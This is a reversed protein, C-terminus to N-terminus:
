RGGEAVAKRAAGARSRVLLNLMGHNGECCAHEFVPLDNKRMPVAVPRPREFSGPDDDVLSTRLDDTLQRGHDWWFENCGGSLLIRGDPGRVRLISRDDASFRGGSPPIRGDPGRQDKDLAALREATFRAAEEASFVDRGALTEPREFPTLGRFDRADQLDPRGEPTRRSREGDDPGAAAAPAVLAAFTAACGFSVSPRLRM